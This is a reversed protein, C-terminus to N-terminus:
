FAGILTFGAAGAMAPLVALAPEDERQRHLAPVAYGILGGALAGTLVDTPYHKGATIRLFGTAVGLGLGVTWIAARWPSGPNLDAFVKAFFVAGCFAASTHLSYFSRAADDGEDRKTELSWGANYLYPRRRQAAVKALGTLATNLAAAEVAMVLLVLAPRPTHRALLAIALASPAVAAATGVITSAVASGKSRQRTAMRDFANVDTADLGELESPAVGGVYAEALFYGALGLVAVSGLLSDTVPHLEYPFGDEGPESAAVPFAFLCVAIIVACARALLTALPTM